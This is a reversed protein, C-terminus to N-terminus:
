WLATKGGFQFSFLFFTYIILLMSRYGISIVSFCKIYATDFKRPKIFIVYQRIKIKATDIRHSWINFFLQNLNTDNQRINEIRSYMIDDTLIAEDLRSQYSAM